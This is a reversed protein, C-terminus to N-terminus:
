HIFFISFILYKFSFKNKVIKIKDEFGESASFISEKATNLIGSNKKTNNTILSNRLLIKLEQENCSDQLASGSM